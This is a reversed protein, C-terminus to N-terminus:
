VGLSSKSAREFLAYPLLRKALVGVREGAKGVSAHRPPRRQTVLREVLDAVLKVDAGKEEDTSMKTIAKRAAASYPSAPDPRIDRRAATFNTKFNGPEVVTVHVGFPSVEYGLAECYGELAFKSASYYAQFPLGVVGGISGIVILRGSGQARMTPLVANVVRAVGWLNTEVQARADGLPIEETAGSVGWGAAAVVADIRGHTALVGAMGAEVSRDDDVDMVLGTWAGGTGRRSAGVVEWGREFLRDACARGIGSSAGTVVVVRKTVDVV